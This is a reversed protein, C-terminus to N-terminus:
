MLLISFSDYFATNGEGEKGVMVTRRLLRKQVRVCFTTNSVVMIHVCLNERAVGRGREWSGPNAGNGSGKGKGWNGKRTGALLCCGFSQKDLM